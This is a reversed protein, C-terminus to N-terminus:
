GGTATATEKIEYWNRTASFRKLVYSKAELYVTVKVTGNPQQTFAELTAGDSTAVKAAAAEATVANRTTTLSHAGASAAARAADSAQHRAWYPSGLEFVAGAVVAAVVLLVLIKLPRTV